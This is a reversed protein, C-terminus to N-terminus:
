QLCCLVDPLNVNVVMNATVHGPSFRRSVIWGVDQLVLRNYM